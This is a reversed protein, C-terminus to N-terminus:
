AVARHRSTLWRLWGARRPVPAAAPLEDPQDLSMDLGFATGLDAPDLEAPLSRARGLRFLKRTTPLKSM